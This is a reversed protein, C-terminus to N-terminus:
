ATESEEPSEHAELLGQLFATVLQQAAGPAPGGIIHGITRGLRRAADLAWAFLALWPGPIAGPPPAPSQFGLWPAGPQM